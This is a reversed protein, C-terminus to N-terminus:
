SLLATSPTSSASNFGSDPKDCILTEDNVDDSEDSVDSYDSPELCVEFHQRVTLISTRQASRTLDLNNLCRRQVESPIEDGNAATAPLLNKLMSKRTKPNPSPPYCYQQSGSNSVSETSEGDSDGCSQTTCREVAQTEGVTFKASRQSFTDSNTHKVSTPTPVESFTSVDSQTSIKDLSEESGGWMALNPSVACLINDFSIKYLCCTEVQLLKSNSPRRAMASSSTGSEVMRSVEQVTSHGVIPTSSTFYIDGQAIIVCFHHLSMCYSIFVFLIKVKHSILHLNPAGINKVLSGNSTTRIEVADNTFSLLYPYKYVLFSFLFWKSM